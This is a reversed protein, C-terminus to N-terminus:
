ATLLTMSASISINIEADNKVNRLIVLSDERVNIQTKEEMDREIRLNGVHEITKNIIRTEM